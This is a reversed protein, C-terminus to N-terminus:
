ASAALMRQQRTNDIATLAEYLWQAAREAAALAKRTEEPHAALVRELEERWTEAHQIDAYAHLAFYGCTNADAGYRQMLGRAKENSVRPVQSEYAYLTALVEAKSGTAAVNRFRKILKRIGKLPQRSRVEQEEVGMGRAFDLWLDTHARGEVEEDALNRLVARRLDGDELRSHFSSLYTPFAAVHHFYEAAYTCLDARSLKGETWARYFPHCLLDHAAIRADLERIVSTHEM